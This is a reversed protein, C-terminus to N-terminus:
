RARFPDLAARDWKAVKAAAEYTSQMFAWLTTEPDDASRIAEPSAEAGPWFGVSSVEHSYAERTVALDFSGWFFHSPSAKGIFRARFAQFLRDVQILAKWFRHAAAGDYSAHQRDEAFPIAPDV